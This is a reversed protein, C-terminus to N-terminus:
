VNNRKKLKKEKSLIFYTNADGGCRINCQAHNFICITCAHVADSASTQLEFTQKIKMLFKRRYYPGCGM